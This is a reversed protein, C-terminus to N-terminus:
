TPRSVASFRVVQHEQGNPFKKFFMEYKLGEKTCFDHLRQEKTRGTSDQHAFPLNSLALWMEEHFGNKAVGDVIEQLIM